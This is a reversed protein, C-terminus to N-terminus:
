YALDRVIPRTDAPDFPPRVRRALVADLEGLFQVSLEGARHRGLSANWGPTRACDKRASNVKCICSSPRM